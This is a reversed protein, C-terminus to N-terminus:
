VSCLLGNQYKADFRDFRPAPTFKTDTLSLYTIKGVELTRPVNHELPENANSLQYASLNVKDTTSHYVAHPAIRRAGYEGVSYLEVLVLTAIEDCLQQEFGLKRPVPQEQAAKQKPPWRGSLAPKRVM